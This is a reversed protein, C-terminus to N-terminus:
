TATPPPSPVGGSLGSSPRRPRPAPSAPPAHGAASPVGSCWAAVDWAPRPAGVTSGLCKTAHHLANTNISASNNYAQHLSGANCPSFPPPVIEASMLHKGFDVTHNKKVANLSSLNKEGAHAWNDRKALRGALKTLPHRLPDTSRPLGGLLKAPGKGKAQRFFKTPPPSLHDCYGPVGKKFAFTKLPM